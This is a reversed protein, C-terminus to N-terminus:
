SGGLFEPITTMEELPIILVVHQLNIPSFNTRYLEEGSQAYVIANSVAIFKGSSNLEDILREEPLLHVDGKVIFHLAQIIVHLAVKPVYDTFYKGKEDYTHKM